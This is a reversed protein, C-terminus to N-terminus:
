SQARDKEVQEAFKDLEDLASPEVLDDLKVEESAEREEKIREAIEVVKQNSLIKERVEKSYAALAKQAAPVSIKKLEALAEVFVSVVPAGVQREKAWEGAQLRAFVEQMADLKAIKDKKESTRDTLLKNLGYLSVKDRIEGDEPLAEFDFTAREVPKDESNLVTFIVAMEETKYAVSLRQAKKGM